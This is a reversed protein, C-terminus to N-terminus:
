QVSCGARAPSRERPLRASEGARGASGKSGAGSRAATSGKSSATRRAAIMRPPHAKASTMPKANLFRLREPASQLWTKFPTEATAMIRNRTGTKSPTATRRISSGTVPDDISPRATTRFRPHVSGYKEDGSFGKSAPIGTGQAKKPPISVCRDIKGGQWGIWVEPHEDCEVLKGHVDRWQKDPNEYAKM